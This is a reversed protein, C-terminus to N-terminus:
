WEPALASTTRCTPPPTPRNTRLWDAVFARLAIRPSLAINLGGGAKLPHAATPDAEDLLSDLHQTSATIGDMQETEGSDLYEEV